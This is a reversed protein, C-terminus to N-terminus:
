QNFPLDAFSGTVTITQSTDAPNAATFEFQGSFTAGVATITLTGSVSQFNAVVSDTTGYTAWINITSMDVGVSNPIDYTGPQIDAPFDFTLADGMRSLDAPTDENMYLRIRAPGFGGVSMNVATFTKNLAGSVTIQGAGASGGSPASGGSSPAETAAAPPQGNPSGAGFSCAFQVISLIVLAVFWSKVSTKM